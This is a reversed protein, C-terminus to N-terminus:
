NEMKTWLHKLSAEIERLEHIRDEVEVTTKGKIGKWEIRNAEENIDEILRLMKLGINAM